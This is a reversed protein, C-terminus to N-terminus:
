LCVLKVDELLLGHSVVTLWLGLNLQDVISVCLSYYKFDM